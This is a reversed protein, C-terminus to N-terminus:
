RCAVVSIGWESYEELCRRWSFDTSSVLEAYRLWLAAGEEKGGFGTQCASALPDEAAEQDRLRGEGVEQHKARRYFGAM